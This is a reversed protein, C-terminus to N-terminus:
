YRAFVARIGLTMEVGGLRVLANAKSQPDKLYIGLASFRNGVLGAYGLLLQPGLWFAGKPGASLRFTFSQEVGAGLLLRSGKPRPLAAASGQLAGLWWAEFQAQGMLAYRMKSRIMWSKGLGASLGIRHIRVGDKGRTMWRAAGQLDWNKQRRELGAQIGWGSTFNPFAPLPLAGASVVGLWVSWKQMAPSKIPPEAQKSLSQAAAPQAQTAQAVQVKEEAQVSGVEPAEDSGSASNAEPSQTEDPEILGEAIALLTSTLERALQEHQRKRDRGLVLERTYVAGEHTLLRLVLRGAGQGSRVQVMVFPPELDRQNSSWLRLKADPFRLQVAKALEKAQTSRDWDIVIVEFTPAESLEKGLVMTTLAASAEARLAREHEVRAHDMSAFAITCTLMDVVGLM